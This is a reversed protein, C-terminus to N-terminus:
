HCRVDWNKRGGGIYGDSLNLWLNEKAGSKGCEWTSPNPDIKVGNDVFPLSATYKSIPIEDHDAQWAQVEQQLGVGAHHIISEVSQQIIGPFHDKTEPSYALDVLFPSASRPDDGVVVISYTTITELKDADFGGEVGIALKTPKDAVAEKERRVRLIRLNISNPVAFAPTTGSFTNLNVLLDDNFFTYCCESNYVSDHATAM